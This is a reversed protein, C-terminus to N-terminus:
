EKKNPFRKGSLGVKLKKSPKSRALIQSALLSGLTNSPNNSDDSKFGSRQKQHSLDESDSNSSENSNEKYKKANRFRTLIRSVTSAQSDSDNSENESDEEHSFRKSASDLTEDSDSHTLELSAEKILGKKAELDEEKINKIADM